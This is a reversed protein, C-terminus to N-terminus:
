RFLRYSLFQSSHSRSGIEYSLSSGSTTKLDEWEEVFHALRGGVSIDLHPLVPLPFPQVDINQPLHPKSLPPSSNRIGM